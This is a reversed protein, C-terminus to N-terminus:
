VGKAGQGSSARERASGSRRRPHWGSGRRRHKEGVAAADADLSRGVSGKEGSGSAATRQGLSPFHLDNEQRGGDSPKSTARV